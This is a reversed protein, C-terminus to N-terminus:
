RWAVVRLVVAAMKELGMVVVRVPDIWKAEQRRAVFGWRRGFAGALRHFSAHWVRWGLKSPKFETM